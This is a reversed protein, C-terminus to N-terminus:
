GHDPGGQEREKRLESQLRELIESPAFITRETAKNSARFNPRGKRPGRTFFVTPVLGSILVGGHVRADLKYWRWGVPMGAMEIAYRNYLDSSFNLPDAM